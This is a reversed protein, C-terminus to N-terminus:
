EKISDFIKKINKIKNNSNYYIGFEIAPSEIELDLKKLKGSKLEEQIYEETIYAIIDNSQMEEIITNFTANKIEINKFNTEKLLSELNRSTSSINRLTYITIKEDDNLISKDLYKSNTNVFFDDHFVGLKVFKISESHIDEPQKKSLYLDIKQKELMSFMDETPAKEINVAINERQKIISIIDRYIDRPMNTHIGFNLINTQKINSEINVLTNIADKIQTYLKEGDLTLIMGYKTRNFLKIQLEDELNHIHKTVAPQSINLIKSAKTLNEEDAVIKFIRYLELNIMIIIVENNFYIM